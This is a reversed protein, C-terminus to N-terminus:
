KQIKLIIGKKIQNPLINNQLLIQTPSVGFKQAIIKLNENEKVEYFPFPIKKISVIKEKGPIYPNKTKYM